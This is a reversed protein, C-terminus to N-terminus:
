GFNLLAFQVAQEFCPEPEIGAARIFQDRGGSQDLALRDVEIMEGADDHTRDVFFASEANDFHHPLQHIGVALDALELIVDDPTRRIQQAHRGAVPDIELMPDGAFLPRWGRTTWGSATWDRATWGGATRVDGVRCGSADLHRVHSFKLTRSSRGSGAATSRWKSSETAGGLHPM